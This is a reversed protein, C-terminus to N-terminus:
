FWTNVFEFAPLGQADCNPEPSAKSTTTDVRTDLKPSQVTYVRSDTCAYEWANCQLFGWCSTHMYEATSSLPSCIRQLSSSGCRTQCARMFSAAANTSLWNGYICICWTSYMHSFKYKYIVCPVGSIIWQKSVLLSQCESIGFWWIILYRGRAVCIFNNRRRFNAHRCGM